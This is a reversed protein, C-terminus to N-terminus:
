DVMYFNDHSLKSEISPNLDRSGECNQMGFNPELLCGSCCLLIGGGRGEVCMCMLMLASVTVSVEFVWSINTTQSWALSLEQGSIESITVGDRM